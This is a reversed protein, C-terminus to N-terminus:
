GAAILAIRFNSYKKKLVIKVVWIAVPLSIIVGAFGSLMTIVQHDAGAIGGIIGIIFGLVFGAVACFIVARWFFSWWVKLAHGWTVEIENM